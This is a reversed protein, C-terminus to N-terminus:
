GQNNILAEVAAQAVEAREHLVYINMLDRTVFVTGYKDCLLDYTATADSDTIRTYEVLHEETACAPCCMFTPCPVPSVFCLRQMDVRKRIGSILLDGEVCPIATIGKRFFEPDGHSFNLRFVSVGVEALQAIKEPSCTAPGITAVIKTRMASGKFIFNGTLSFVTGATTEAGRASRLRGKKSFFTSRATKRKKKKM